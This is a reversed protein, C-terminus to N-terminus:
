LLLMVKTEVEERAERMKEQLSALETKHRHETESLASSYSERVRSLSESSALEEVQENLSHITAEASVLQSM